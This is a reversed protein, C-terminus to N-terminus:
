TQNEPGPEFAVMTVGMEQEISRLQNLQSSDLDAYRPQPEVALVVKGIDQELAQIKDLENATIKAPTIEPNM